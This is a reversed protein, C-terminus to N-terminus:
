NKLIKGSKIYYIQISKYFWIIKYTLERTQYGYNITRAVM